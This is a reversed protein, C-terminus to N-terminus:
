TIDFSSKYIKLTTPLSIWSTERQDEQQYKRNEELIKLGNKNRSEVTKSM